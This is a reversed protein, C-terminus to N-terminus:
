ENKPQGGRQILIDRNRSSVSEVKELMMDKCYLPTEKQSITMHCLFKRDGNKSRKWYKLCYDGSGSLISNGDASFVASTVTSLHGEMCQILEGSKRDWVKISRDASGSLILEDDKSFCATYIWNNGVFDRVLGGTEIDWLKITKDESCSLALRSDSSFKVSFVFGEHGQFTKLIDATQVDWLLVYKDFAGSLFSKDDPSFDLASVTNQHAAFIFRGKGLNADWMIINKDGAGSLVFDGSHSFAVVQVIGQHGGLSYILNGTKTEWIKIIGDAAGSAFREGNPAFVVSYVAREHGEFTRILSGTERDWLKITRDSSGSLFFTEDPSLAACNILNKHGEYIKLSKTATKEWLKIRKDSSGSLLIEGDPSFIVSNVCGDHGELNTLACGTSKEWLKITNNQTGSAILTEDPSFAVCTIPETQGELTQIVKGTEVEWIKLTQDRSGSLFLTGDASFAISSVCQTHEAFEKVLTGTAREWLKVLSDYSCSLIFQGDQSFVVQNINETHGEATWLLKGSKKEWLKVTKDSSCSSIVQGDYSFAVSNVSGTHGFYSQIVKGTLFSWLKISNDRSGSVITDGNPSWAISNIAGSHGDISLVSRGTSTEFLNISGDQSGSLILANDSSFCTSMVWNHHLLFKRILNGTKPDWIKISNDSSGSLIMTGDSSFEVSNMSNSEQIDHLVNGDKLDWIKMSNDYSGSVLLDKKPSFAVSRILNTHGVFGKLLKGTKREWIHINKEKTGSAILEGDHSITVCLVSEKGVLNLIILGTIRDWIKITGDGSGSIFFTGDPGFTVSTVYKTHGEIMKILNGSSVDWLKVTKDNSGSLLLAGDPSFAISTLEEQPHGILDQLLEGTKRDWIQLSGQKSGWAILNGDQSLAVSEVEQPGILCKLLKNENKFDFIKISMDDCASAIMDGKPSFCLSKVESGVVIDPYIGLRVDKLNTKHFLAHDLKCNELITGSLDGESFDCGSFAGDRLNAGSIRIKSLDCDSFSCNAAILISIANAAANISKQGSPDENNKIKRSNLVISFLKDKFTTQEKVIEATFKMLFEDQVILGEGLIDIKDDLSEYIIAKILFFNKISDHTFSITIVENPKVGRIEVNLDLARILGALIQNKFCSLNKDHLFKRFFDAGKENDLKYLNISHMNKALNMAAEEMFKIFEKLGNLKFKAMFLEKITLDIKDIKKRTYNEYIKSRTITEQGSTIIEPLVELTLHVMYGTKMLSVLNKEKIKQIMEEIKIKFQNKEKETWVEYFKSIYKEYSFTENDLPAIFRKIFGETESYQPKFYKLLDADKQIFESRCCIIVRNDPNNGLDELFKSVYNIKSAVEDFSDIFVVVPYRSYGSFYNFNWEKSEMQECLWKWRVRLDEEMSLNIFIPIPDGEKWKQLMELYNLQLLTSKGSGSAGLLVFVKELTAEGYLFSQLNEQLDDLKVNDYRLPDIPGAKLNIFTNKIKQLNPNLGFNTLNEETKQLLDHIFKKFDIEQKIEDRGIIKLLELGKELSIRKKYSNNRMQNILNELEKRYKVNTLYKLVVEQVITGISFSMAKCLDVQIPEIIESDPGNKAEDMENLANMVEPATFKVTLEKIELCSISELEKRSRKRVVGALDILMGKYNEGDYLTNEPKMDTICIGKNLLKSTIEFISCLYSRQHSWKNYYPGNPKFAKSGDLVPVFKQFTYGKQHIEDIGASSELIKMDYVEPSFILHSVEGVSYDNWSNERIERWTFKRGDEGKENTIIKNFHMTKKVCICQGPKMIASTENRTLSMCIRITGFSGKGIIIKSSDSKTTEKFCNELYEPQIEGTELLMQKEKNNITNLLAYFGGDDGIIVSHKLGPHQKKGFFGSILSAQVENHDHKEMIKVMEELIDKRFIYTKETKNKYKSLSDLEGKAVSLFYEKVEDFFRVYDLKLSNFSVVQLLSKKDCLCRFLIIKWHLQQNLSELTLILMKEENNPFWDNSQCTWGQTEKKKSYIEQLISLYTIWWKVIVKIQNSETIEKKEEQTEIKASDTASELPGKIFVNMLKEVAEKFASLTSQSSYCGELDGLISLISLTIKIPDFTGISSAKLSKWFTEQNQLHLIITNYDKMDCSLSLKEM